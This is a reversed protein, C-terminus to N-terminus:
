GVNRSALVEGIKRQIELMKVREEVNGGVVRTVNAIKGRSAIAEM